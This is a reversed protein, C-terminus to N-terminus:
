HKKNPTTVGRIVHSHLNRRFYAKKPELGLLFARMKPAVYRYLVVLQSYSHNQTGKQTDEEGRGKGGKGGEGSGGEM